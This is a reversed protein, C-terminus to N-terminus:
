PRNRGVGACITLVTQAYQRKNRPIVGGAVQRVGSTNPTILNPKVAWLLLVIIDPNLSLAMFSHRLLSLDTVNSMLKKIEFGQEHREGNTTNDEEILLM